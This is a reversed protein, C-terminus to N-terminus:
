LSARAGRAGLGARGGRRTPPVVNLDVLRLLLHSSSLGLELPDGNLQNPLYHGRPCCTLTNYRFRSYSSTIRKGKLVSEKQPQQQVTRQMHARKPQRSPLVPASVPSSM